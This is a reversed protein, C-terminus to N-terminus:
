IQSSAKSQGDRFWSPIRPTWALMVALAVAFFPAAIKWSVGMFKLAFGFLAVTEAHVFSVINAMNWRALAQRPDKNTRFCEDCERFLKQRRVAGFAIDAVAVLAIALVTADPVPHEPPAALRCVLLFLFITTVFAGHLIRVRTIHESGPAM